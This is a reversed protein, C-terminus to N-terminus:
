RAPDSRKKTDKERSQGDLSPQQKEVRDKAEKVVDNLPEHRGLKLDPKKYGEINLKKDYEREFIQKMEERTLLPHRELEEVMEEVKGRTEEDINWWEDQYGRLYESASIPEIDCADSCFAYKVEDKTAQITLFGSNNDQALPDLKVTDPFHELRGEEVLWEHLDNMEEMLDHGPVLTSELTNLETLAKLIYLDERRGDFSSGGVRSHEGLGFPNFMDGRAGELFHVLQHARAIVHHGWAWQLHMGFLNEGPTGPEKTKGYNLYLQFREGM